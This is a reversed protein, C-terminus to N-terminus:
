DRWEISDVGPDCSSSFVARSCPIFCRDLMHWYCLLKILCQLSSSYRRTSSTSADVDFIRRRWIEGDVIKSPSISSLWLLPFHGRMFDDFTHFYKLNLGLRFPTTIQVRQWISNAYWLLVVAINSCRLRSLIEHAHSLIEHARSLIEHARPFITRMDSARMLRAVSFYIITWNTM